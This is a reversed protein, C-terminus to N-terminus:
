GLSGTGKEGASSGAAAWASHLSSGLAPLPTTIHASHPASGVYLTPARGPEGLAGPVAPCWPPGKTAGIFLQHHCSQPQLRAPGPSRSPGLHLQHHLKGLLDARPYEALKEQLRLAGQVTTQEACSGRLALGQM